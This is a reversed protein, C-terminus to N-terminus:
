MYRELCWHPTSFPSSAKVRSFFVKREWEEHDKKMQKALDQLELHRGLGKIVIPEMPKPPVVHVIPKFTCEKFEELERQAQLQEISKTKQQWGRRGRL